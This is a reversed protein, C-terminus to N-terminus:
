GATKLALLQAAAAKKGMSRLAAIAPLHRARPRADGKEWNHVSQGSAGILLGMDEASLGLRQRTSVLGKAVFRMGQRPAADAQSTDPRAAVRTTRRLAQQLERVTRKLTAIESRQSAVAKKLTQTEHRVEKRAVRAIELKLVSAINPM